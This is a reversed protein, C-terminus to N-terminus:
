GAEEQTRATGNGAKSRAPAYFEVNLIEQRVPHREVRQIFVLYRAGNVTLEVPNMTGVLRFLHEFDYTDVSVPQPVAIGPGYIIGPLRGSRRLGRVQKGIITRPRATLTEHQAM